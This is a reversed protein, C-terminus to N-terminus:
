FSLIQTKKQARHAHNPEYAKGTLKSVVHGFAVGGDSVPWTRWVHM